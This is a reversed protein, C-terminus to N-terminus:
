RAAWMEIEVRMGLLLQVGVTTRVPRPESFHRLYEHNFEGWDGLDALFVNVKFVQSLSSGATTLQRACNEITLKTQEGIDAGQVNGHTDLPGQGSLVVLEGATVALVPSYPGATTHQTADAFTLIRNM